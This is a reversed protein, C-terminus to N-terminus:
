EHAMKKERLVTLKTVRTIRFVTTILKSSFQNSFHAKDRFKFATIILNKKKAGFGLWKTDFSTTQRQAIVGHHFLARMKFLHGMLISAKQRFVKAHANLHM